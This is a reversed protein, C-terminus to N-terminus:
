PPHHRKLLQSFKDYHYHAGKSSFSTLHARQLVSPLRQPVWAEFWLYPWEPSFLSSPGYIPLSPVSLHPPPPVSGLPSEEKHGWLDETVHVTGMPWSHNFKEQFSPSPSGKWYTIVCTTVQSSSTRLVQTLSVEIFRQMQFGWIYSRGM